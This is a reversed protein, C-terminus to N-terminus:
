NTLEVKMIGGNRSSPTLGCCVSKGVRKREIAGRTELKKLYYSVTSGNSDMSEVIDKIFLPKDKLLELIRNEKDKLSEIKDFKSYEM